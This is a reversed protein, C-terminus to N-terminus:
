WLFVCLVCLVCLTQIFWSVVRHHDPKGVKPVPGIIVKTKV